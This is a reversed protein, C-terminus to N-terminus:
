LREKVTIKHVTRGPHILHPTADKKNMKKTVIKSITDDRNRNRVTSNFKSLDEKLMSLKLASLNNAYYFFVVLITAFISTVYRKSFSVPANRNSNKRVTAAHRNNSNPNDKFSGADPKPHVIRVNDDAYIYFAFLIALVALCFNLDPLLKLYLIAFIVSLLMSISLIFLKVVAGLEKIVASLVVGLLCQNIVLVYTWNNFGSLLFAEKPHVARHKWIDLICHICSFTVGWLSIKLYKAALSSQGIQNKVAKRRKLIWEGYAATVSSFICYVVILFVGRSTVFFRHDKIAADVSDDTLINKKQQQSLSIEVGDVVMDDDLVIENSIKSYHYRAKTRISTHGDQLDEHSASAAFISGFTLIVLAVWQRDTLHKKLFIRCSVATGIIKLTSLTQFTASDMYELCNFAIEDNIAYMVAPFAYLYFENNFFAGSIFLHQLENNYFLLAICVFVRLIESLFVVSSLMFHFHSEDGKAWVFLISNTSYLIVGFTCLLLTTTSLLLLSSKQEGNVKNNESTHIKKDLSRELDIITDSDAVYTNNCSADQVKLRKKGNSTPGSTKRTTKDM